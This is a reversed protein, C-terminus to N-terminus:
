SRIPTRQRKALTEDISWYDSSHCLHSLLIEFLQQLRGPIDYAHQAIRLDTGINIGDHRRFEAVPAGFLGGPSLRGHQEILCMM